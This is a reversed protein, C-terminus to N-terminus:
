ADAREQIFVPVCPDHLALVLPALYAKTIPLTHLSKELAGGKALIDDTPTRREISTLVGNKQGLKLAYIGRAAQVIATGDATVREAGNVNQADILLGVYRWLPGRGIEREIARLLPANANRGAPSNESAEAFRAQERPLPLVGCVAEGPKFLALLSRASQQPVGDQGIWRKLGDMDTPLEGINVGGLAVPTHGLARPIIQAIQQLHDRKIEARVDETGEPVPRELGLALHAARGQAMRCLNFLRPLLAAVDAVPKGILLKALPLPAPQLIVPPLQGGVTDLMIRAEQSM